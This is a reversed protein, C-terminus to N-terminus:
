LVDAATQWTSPNAGREQRVFRDGGNRRSPGRFALHVAIDTVRFVIGHRTSREGTSALQIAMQRGPHRRVLATRIKRVVHNWKRNIRADATSVCACHADHLRQRLPGIPNSFFEFFPRPIYLLFRSRCACRLRASGGPPPDARCEGFSIASFVQCIHIEEM